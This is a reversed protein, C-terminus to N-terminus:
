IEERKDLLSKMYDKIEMRIKTWIPNNSSIYRIAVLDDRESTFLKDDEERYAIRDITKYIYILDIPLKFINWGASKKICHCQYDNFLGEKNEEFANTLMNSITEIESDSLNKINLESALTEIIKKKKM